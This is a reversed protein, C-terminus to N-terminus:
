AFIAMYSVFLAFGKVIWSLMKSAIQKEGKGGTREYWNLLPKGSRDKLKGKFIASCERWLAANFLGVCFVRTTATQGGIMFVLLFFMILPYLLGTIIRGAYLRHLGFAWLWVAVYCSKPSAKEPNDPDYTIPTPAPEVPENIYGLKDAFSHEAVSSTSTSLATSPFLVEVAAKYAKTGKHPRVYKDPEIKKLSAWLSEDNVALKAYAYFDNLRPHELMNKIPSKTEYCLVCYAYFAAKEGGELSYVVQNFLADGGIYKSFKIGSQQAFAAFDVDPGPLPIVEYQRTDPGLIKETSEDTEGDVVRSLIASVDAKGIDEPLVIGLDRAYELQSETPKELYTAGFPLPTFRYGKKLTTYISYSSTTVSFKPDINDNDDTINSSSKHFLGM